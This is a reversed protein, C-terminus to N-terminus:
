PKLPIRRIWHMVSSASGQLLSRKLGAKEDIQSAAFGHEAVFHWWSFVHGRERRTALTGQRKIIVMTMAGDKLVHRHSPIRGPTFGCNSLPVDFDDLDPLAGQQRCLAGPTSRVSCCVGQSCHM